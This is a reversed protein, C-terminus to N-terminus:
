KVFYVVAEIEKGKLLLQINERIYLDPYGELIDLIKLTIEDIKFVEGKVHKGQNKDNILYPFTFKM